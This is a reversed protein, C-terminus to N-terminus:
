LRCEKGVRREESRGMVVLGRTCNSAAPQVALTALGQHSAHADIMKRCDLEGYVEGHLVLIDEPLSAAGLTKVSGATGLPAEEVSYRLRVGWRSGDGFHARVRDAKYGLCLIVTEFGSASLWALQHELLPKGGLPLLLKPVYEQGLRLCEGSGEALIVAVRM